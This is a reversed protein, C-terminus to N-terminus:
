ELYGLAKLREVVEEDFEPAATTPVTQEFSARWNELRAHREAAVAPLEDRLNHEESPDSTRDYLEHRGDSAWIFKYQADRIMTLSRDFRSVDVGPFRTYFKSLDPRSQEAITFERRMASLLDYGQLSRLTDSDTEGVMNLITPVIDLTQVQASVRGSATTGKPYHIVLPVHLLTDYLCYKHAMMNHDGLNEGHDATVIVMTNDLMGYQKLTDVVQGIRSDVYYIESDYLQVLTKFDKDSMMDPAILYKWPDQNVKLADAVTMKDTLFRGYRKPLRYPAHTDEYHMFMFFPAQEVDLQRLSQL